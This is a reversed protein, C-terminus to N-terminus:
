SCNAGMSSKTWSVPAVLTNMTSSPTRSSAVPKGPSYRLCSFSMFPAGLDPDGEVELVFPTRLGEPTLIPEM